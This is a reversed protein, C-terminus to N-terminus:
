NKTGDKSIVFGGLETVLDPLKGEDLAKGAREIGDAISRMFGAQDSVNMMVPTQPVAIVLVSVGSPVLLLDGNALKWAGAM